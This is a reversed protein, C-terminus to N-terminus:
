SETSAASTSHFRSRYERPTMGVQRSFLKRFSSVDEYGCRTVIDELPLASAALLEKARAVRLSQLYSLPSMGLASQFKRALTREHVGIARCVTAVTLPSAANAELYRLARQTADDVPLQTVAPASLFPPQSGRRGEVLMLRATAAAAPDGALERVLELGLHMYASGAAATWRKGDVVVLRDLVLEVIVDYHRAPARTSFSLAHSARIRRKRGLPHWDFGATKRPARPSLNQLAINAIGRQCVARM